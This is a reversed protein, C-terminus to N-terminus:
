NQFNEDAAPFRILFKTGRGNQSNVEITGGAAQIAAEVADLGVGRGADETVVAATSFGSLFILQGAKAEDFASNEGILKREKALGWVKEGNIGRGDDSIQLCFSDKERWAELRVWGTENKGNERREQPTEIGHAVANRAIHLLAIECAEAREGAIEVEAIGREQFVVKKRQAAATKHGALSAQAWLNSLRAKPTEASFDNISFESVGVFNAHKAAATGQESRSRAPKETSHVGVIEANSGTLIERLTEARENCAFILRLAIEGGNTKEADPLTAIIEGRPNLKSQVQCFGEAFRPVDFKVSILALASNSKLAQRLRENEASNLQKELEFPLIAQESTEVKNQRANQYIAQWNELKQRVSSSLSNEPTQAFAAEIEQVGEELIATSEAFNEANIIELFNELEHAIRSVAEFDFAAASGKLTHLQRFLKRVLEPQEIPNATQLRNLDQRLNQIRRPADALFAAQLEQM